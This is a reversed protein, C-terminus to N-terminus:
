CASKSRINLAMSQRNLILEHLSIVSSTLGSSIVGSYTAERRLRGKLRTLEQIPAMVAFLSQTCDFKAFFITDWIYTDVQYVSQGSLGQFFPLLIQIVRDVQLNGM